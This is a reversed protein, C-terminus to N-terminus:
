GDSRHVHLGVKRVDFHADLPQRELQPRLQWRESIRLAVCHTIGRHGVIDKLPAVVHPRRRARVLEFLGVQM